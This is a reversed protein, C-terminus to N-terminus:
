HEAVLAQFGPSSRIPAYTPDILLYPRATGTPLVLVRRLVAVASDANGLMAYGEAM